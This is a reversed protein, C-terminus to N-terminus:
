SVLGQAVLFEHAVIQPDKHLVDVQYNLEAMVENTMIDKIDNCCSLEPYKDLIPKRIIPVMNYAPFFNRDDEIVVLEYQALLGDTSYADIFQVEDNDVAVYRTASDMTRVNAEEMTFGYENEVGVLGDLRSSDAFMFTSGLVMEDPHTNIVISLDSFTKINYRDATEKKMAFTYTNNFNEPELIEVDYEELMEVRLVELMDDLDVGKEVTHGLVSCYVTGTYGMVIDIQQSKLAGYLPQTDGLGTKAKVKLDTKEEIYEAMIYNMIEPETATKSGIVIDYKPTLATPLIIIVVLLSCITILSIKQMMRQKKEKKKSVVKASKLAIGKPTVLKEVLSFIFDVLLALICAPIAGAFIKATNMSSIGSFVLKGLGDAGIYAAMTMLGVATVASIRVGAMIIPLALPIQVKFLRQLGNLGIGKAVENTMPSINSIGTYTNKIIPLLSYLTVAIVAPVEGIGFLPIMLGLLAISPIAQIINATGMIPKNIPKVYSILIGLPVGILIAFGVAMATLGIHGVLLNLIYIYNNSVYTFFEM